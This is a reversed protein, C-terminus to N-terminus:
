YCAYHAPELLEYGRIKYLPGLSYSQILRGSCPDKRILGLEMVGHPLATPGDVGVNHPPGLIYHSKSPAHILHIFHPKRASPSPLGPSTVGAEMMHPWGVM